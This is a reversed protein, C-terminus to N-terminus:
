GRWQHRAIEDALSSDIERAFHEFRGSIDRAPSRPNAACEDCMNFSTFPTSVMHEADTLAAIEERTEPMMSEDERIIRKMEDIDGKSVRALMLYFGQDM